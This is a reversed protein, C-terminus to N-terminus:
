YSWRVRVRLFVQPLLRLHDTSIACEFGGHQIWSIYFAQSEAAGRSSPSQTLQLFANYKVERHGSFTVWGNIVVGEFM